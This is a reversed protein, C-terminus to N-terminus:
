LLFCNVTCCLYLQCMKSKDRSSFLQASETPCYQRRVKMRIGSAYTDHWPPTFEISSPLVTTLPCQDLSFRHILLKWPPKQLHPWWSLSIGQNVGQDTSISPSSFQYCVLMLSHMLEQLLKHSTIRSKSMISKLASASWGTLISLWLWITQKQKHKWSHIQSKSMSAGVSSISVVNCFHARASSGQQLLFVFPLIM